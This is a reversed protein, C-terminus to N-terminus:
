YDSISVASKLCFKHLMQRPKGSGRKETQEHMSALWLGSPPLLVLKIKSNRGILARYTPSFGIM